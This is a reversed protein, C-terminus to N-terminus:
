AQVTAYDAWELKMKPPVIPCLGRGAWNWPLGFHVLMVPGVLIPPFVFNIGPESPMDVRNFIVVKLTVFVHQLNQWKSLTIPTVLIKPVYLLCTNHWLGVRKKGRSKVPIQEPKYRWKPQLNLFLHIFERAKSLSMRSNGYPRASNGRQLLVKQTQLM